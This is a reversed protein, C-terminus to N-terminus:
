ATLWPKTKSQVNVTVRFYLSDDKLYQCNNRVSLRLNAHEIFKPKGWGDGYHKGAVRPVSLVPNTTCKHHNKDELQNLLEITVEGKFPWELTDDYDGPMLCTYCSIHTGRGEGTGNSYVILCMKYGGPSTYFGPSYWKDNTARKDFCNGLKFKLPAIANYKELSVIRDRAMQLHKGMCTQEHDEVRDRFLPVSCGIDAYPCRIIEKPCTARHSQLNGQKVIEECQENPCPVPCHLCVSMHEGWIFCYKAENGCHPCEIVRQPCDLALHNALQHRCFRGDCQNTCSIEQHNCDNLHEDLERLKGVWECGDDNNACFINFLHIEKDARTDRFYKNTLNERCDPAQCNFEEPSDRLQDLCSKCYVSGCCSVQHPDRSPLLCVLCKYKDPVDEIFHYIYGGINHGEGM